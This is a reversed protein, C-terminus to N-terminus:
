ARASRFVQGRGTDESRGLETGKALLECMLSEFQALKFSTKSMFVTNDDSLGELM